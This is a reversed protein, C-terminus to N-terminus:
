VEGALVEGVIADTGDQIFFVHSWGIDLFGNVGSKLGGFGVIGGKFLRVREDFAGGM